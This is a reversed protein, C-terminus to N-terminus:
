FLNFSNFKPRSCTDKYKQYFSVMELLTAEKIKEIKLQSAGKPLGKSIDEMLKDEVEIKGFSRVSCTGYGIRYNEDTYSYEIIYNM